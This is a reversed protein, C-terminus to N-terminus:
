SQPAISTIDEFAHKGPWDGPSRVEPLDSFGSFGPVTQLYRRIVGVTRAAAASSPDRLRFALMTYGPVGSLAAVTGVTGYLVVLGEKAVLQAGVLNRGEGSVPVSVVNGDAAYLRVQGGAGGVGRGYAANQVDSLVAGEGPASGATVAVANVKPHLFSSEGILLGQQRRAGVFVRTSFTAGPAFASVNPLRAIAAIRAASLALPKVTVTVDALKNAAIERNMARTMLTPLAFLSLSAVALALAAVTFFTRGRRRTLDGISKRAVASLITM